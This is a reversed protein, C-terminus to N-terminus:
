HPRDITFSPACDANGDRRYTIKDSLSAIEDLLENLETSKAGEDLTATLEIPQTLNQLHSKLQTSLAPDLM